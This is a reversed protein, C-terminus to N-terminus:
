RQFPSWGHCLGNVNGYGGVAGLVGTRGIPGVGM